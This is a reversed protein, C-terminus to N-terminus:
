SVSASHHIHMLLSAMMPESLPKDGPWYWAMVQAFAPINDIPGKPVFSLSIKISIWLNENLFICKFIDDAFHHDNTRLRLTNIVLKHMVLGWNTLYLLKCAGFSAQFYLVFSIVMKERNQEDFVSILPNISRRKVQSWAARCIGKDTRKDTWGDTQRDCRFSLTGTMRNDHCKWSQGSSYHGHLLDQDCILTVSTLFNGLQIIVGTQIWVNNYHHM